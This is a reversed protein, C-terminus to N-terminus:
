GSNGCLATVSGSVQGIQKWNEGNEGWYIAGSQTGFILHRTEAPQALVTIYEPRPLSVPQWRNEPQAKVFLTSWSNEVWNGPPTGSAAAFYRGDASIIADINYFLDIEETIEEWTTGNDTSFFIGAETGAIWHAPVTPHAHLRHVTEDLAEDTPSWRAGGDTSFAAGGNKIGVMVTHTIPSLAITSILPEDAFPPPYWADVPNAAHLAETLNQWTEGTDPSRYLECNATGLWVNQADWTVTTPSGGFIMQWSEGDDASRFVGEGAVAAFVANPSLAIDVIRKGPFINHPTFSDSHATKELRYLGLETGIFITITMNGITRFTNEDSYYVCISSRALM